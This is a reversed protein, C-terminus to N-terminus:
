KVEIDIKKGKPKVARPFRLELVGHELRATCTAADYDPRIDYEVTHDKGRLKYSITLRQGDAAVDVDGPKVGPLDFSALMGTDNEEVRVNTRQATSSVKPFLDDFLGGFPDSSGFIRHDEVNWLGPIPDRKSM